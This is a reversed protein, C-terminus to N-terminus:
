LCAPLKYFWLFQLAVSWSELPGDDSDDHKVAEGAPEKVEVKCEVDLDVAGDEHSNPIQNSDVMLDESKPEGIANENWAFDDDYNCDQYDHSIYDVTTLTCLYVVSEKHHEYAHEIFLSEEKCIYDCSPCKYHLFDNMSLVAWPSPPLQGEDKRISKQLFHYRYLFM